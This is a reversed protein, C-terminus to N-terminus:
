NPRLGWKVIAEILLGLLVIAIAGLLVPVFPLTNVPEGDISVSANGTANAQETTPGASILPTMQYSGTDLGDESRISLDQGRGFAM